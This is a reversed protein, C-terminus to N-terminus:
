AKRRRLFIFGGIGATALGSIVLSSPEPVASLTEIQDLDILGTGISGAYATGSPLQPYDGLPLPFTVKLYKGPALSGVGGAIINVTSVTVTEETGTSGANYGGTGNPVGDGWPDLLGITGSGTNYNLNIADLSVFHGGSNPTFSSNNAIPASAWSIGLQVADKQNLVDALAQASPDTAQYVNVTPSTPNSTLWSQTGSLINPDQSGNATTGMAAQLANVTAYSNPSTSFPNNDTSYGYAQLWSLGNAVATPACSNNQVAQGGNVAANGQGLFQGGYGTILDYNESASQAYLSYASVSILGTLLPWSGPRKQNTKPM